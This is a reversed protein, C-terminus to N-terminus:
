TVLERTRASSTIRISPFTTLNVTVSTGYKVALRRVETAIEGADRSRYPQPLLQNDWDERYARILYAGNQDREPYWGVDIYVGNPLSILLVDATLLPLRLEDYLSNYLVEARLNSPLKLGILKM